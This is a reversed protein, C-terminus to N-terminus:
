FSVNECLASRRVEAFLAVCSFPVGFPSVSV